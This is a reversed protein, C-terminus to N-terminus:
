TGHGTSIQLTSTSSGTIAALYRDSPGRTFTEIAGPALYACAAAMTSTAVTAVGTAASVFGFYVGVSGTNQLRVQQHTVASLDITSSATTVAMAGSNGLTMPLSYAAM